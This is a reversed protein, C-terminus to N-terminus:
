RKATPTLGAEGCSSRKSEEGFTWKKGKELPSPTVSAMGMVGSLLGCRSPAYRHGNHGPREDYLANPAGHEFEYARRTPTM